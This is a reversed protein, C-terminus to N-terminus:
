PADVGTSGSAKSGAANSGAANSGATNAAPHAADSAADEEQVQLERQPLVVGCSIFFQLAEDITMNLNHAAHSPVTVVNGTFPVPSGPVAVTLCPEHAAGAIDLMGEGTVLGITWVGARPFEIAVVRRYHVEGEVFAFDTMKKVSAYVSRVLPLRGIMPELISGVRAAFLRGLIYLVGIFVILFLPVVIMPRLFRADVYRQYAVRATPPLSENPNSRGLDVVDKPVYQLSELRVYERGGFQMTSGPPAAMDRTERVDWLAWVLSERALNTVPRLVYVQVTSAVWLFVVITLVPPLMIALGRLVARRFPRPKAVAPSVAASAPLGM